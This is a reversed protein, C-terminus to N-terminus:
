SRAWSCATLRHETTPPELRERSHRTAARVKLAGNRRRQIPASGLSHRTSVLADISLRGGLLIPIECCSSTPRTIRKILNQRKPPFSRRRNHNASRCSRRGTHNHGAATHRPTYAKSGILRAIGNTPIMSSKTSSGKANCPRRLNRGASMRELKLWLDKSLGPGRGYFSFLRSWYGLKRRRSRLTCDAAARRRLNGRPLATPAIDAHIRRDSRRFPGDRLPASDPPGDTRWRVCSRVQL